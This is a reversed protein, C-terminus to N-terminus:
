WLGRWAYVDSADKACVEVTDKTAGVGTVGQTTWFSGRTTSTCAPKTGPAGTSVPLNTLQSGDGIFSTAKVTGAVELKQTPSSTGIGVTGDYKVVVREARNTMSTGTVISLRAPVSGPTVPGDVYGEILAGSVFQGGGVGAPTDWGQFNFTGLKDNLMVAAPTALTGRARMTAFVPRTGAGGTGTYSANTFQSQGNPNRATMNGSSDALYTIDGNANKIQAKTVTNAETPGQQMTLVTGNAGVAIKNLIDSQMDPSGAPGQPGQPGQPGVSGAAGQPGAAGTAGPAGDAGKAAMVQWNVGDTAPNAGTNAALAIYSSGGYNICDDKAYTTTSNWAGKFHAVNSLASGDGTFSTGTVNGASTVRFMVAATTPDEVTLRDTEVAFALAPVMVLTALALMGGATRPVLNGKKIAFICSMRM